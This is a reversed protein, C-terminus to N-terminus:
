ELLSFEKRFLYHSERVQLIHANIKLKSHVLVLVHVNPSPLAQLTPTGVEKKRTRGRGDWPFNTEEDALPNSWHGVEQQKSSSCNGKARDNAAIWAMFLNPPKFDDVAPLYTLPDDTEGKGRLQLVLGNRWIGWQSYTLKKWGAGGEWIYLFSAIQLDKKPLPFPEGSQHFNQEFTSQSKFDIKEFFRPLTNFPPQAQFTVILHIFLTDRLTFGRKALIPKSPSRDWIAKATVITSTLNPKLFFDPDIINWM